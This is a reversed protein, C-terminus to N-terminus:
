RSARALGNLVMAQSMWHLDTRVHDKRVSKGVVNGFDCYDFAAAVRAVYGESEDTYPSRYADAAARMREENWRGRWIVPVLDVELLAAWEVTDDWSLCQNRDDFIAFLLFYGPLNRYAVSHVAQLNEGVLRWGAPLEHGVRAQLASVWTRSPHYGSNVSRAHVADRYISCSEGDLKETVVVDRGQFASAGDLLLDDDDRNPSWPLHATRAHKVRTRYLTLMGCQGLVKQAQESWFMEGIGRTGDALLPNGWKDYREDALLQIPLVVEDINAMSRLEDPLSVCGEALLHCSPGGDPAPADCLTVGNSLAYGGRHPEGPASFLRREMLHHADLEVDSRGCRVCASGDRSFVADRWM